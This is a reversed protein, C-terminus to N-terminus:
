GLCSVLSSVPMEGVGGMQTRERASSLQKETGPSATEWDSLEELHDARAHVAAWVDSTQLLDDHSTPLFSWPAEPKSSTIQSSRM